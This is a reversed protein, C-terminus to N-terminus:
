KRNSLEYFMKEYSNPAKYGLTSHPHETNYFMIYKQVREKFETESHYNTRYLEEKKMSAFFSEMVANHCPKGSPSFSQKVGYTKLLSQFTYSTYQSGRDSHFILGGMWIVNKM